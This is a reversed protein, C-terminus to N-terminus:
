LEGLFALDIEIMRQGVDVGRVADGILPVLLDTTGPRDVELVECSPLALLRRVTGVMRSGDVVTCGELDEAWWEDEDLEPAVDRAVLLAAGRLAEAAARDDSGELRVLPRRDTGARRTIELTRDGVQVSAGLILLEPRPEVVHFTGDLGHPSGVRGARLWGRSEAV